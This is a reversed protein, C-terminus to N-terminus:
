SALRWHPDGLCVMCNINHELCTVIMERMKQALSDLDKIKEITESTKDVIRQRAELPTMNDRILSTVGYLFCHSFIKSESAMIYFLNNFGLYGRVGAELAKYGLDTGSKCAITYIFKNKLLNVNTQDILANENADYLKDNEGHDIFIFLGDNGIDKKLVSEVKKRLANKGIFTVLNIKDMNTLAAKLQFAWEVTCKTAEDNPIQPAVLIVNM